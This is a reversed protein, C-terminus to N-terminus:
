FSSFHNIFREIIEQARHDWTHAQKVIQCANWAIERREQEHNLYYRIIENVHEWKYPEYLLIDRNPKFHEKVWLTHTNIVLCGCCSAMFLREHTGNKFYPMSNLCIKSRKMVSIADNLLISPSIHINEKQGLYYKWSKAPKPYSNATGGFVHVQAEKIASLLEVRDLAHSYLLVDLYISNLTKENIPEDYQRLVNDVVQWYPTIADSLYTSVAKDMANQITPSYREWNRKMGEPDYSTGFFVIDIDKVQSDQVNLDSEVGHGLFFINQMGNNIMFDKHYHDCCGYHFWSSKPRLIDGPTPDINFCLLPVRFQEWILPTIVSCDGRYFTCCLNPQERQLIVILRQNVDEPILDFFITKIGIRNFAEGLKVSFHKRVDYRSNGVLFLVKKIM